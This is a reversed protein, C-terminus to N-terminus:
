EQYNKLERASPDKADTWNPMWFHPIVYARETFFKDFIKRYFYSEKLFPTCHQINRRGEKFEEDSIQSDIFEQLTTHWSNKINSVGDSFACKRRHLIEKPLLNTNEFAKRLLYKEPRGNSGFMKLVPPIQMCYEVFAKDLFPTRAELGNSSVCRDSRLVDFLYIENLLKVNEESFDVLGPANKNYVYGMCVEDAGDGNFVVKVDTNESIYKSILYNGVSARVTTTDYSEINYIVTEIAEIFEEESLQVSHHDSGIYDAVIQAYRLDPSGEMGISFTKLNQPDDVMSAVLASILSSDLGGSLLCGVERDSMMRKAVAATLLERIKQCTKEEDLQLQDFTSNYYNMFAGPVDSAWWSGPPFPIISGDCIDILAKMESAITISGDDSWGIFAPRVGFPDRACFVIDEAADYLVFAFVGDLMKVTESIGYIKYLHLIVECDSGSKVELEHEQILEKYNYIEGNCVLSLNSDEPHALPQNALTSTDIIALRHFYLEIKKNISLRTTNDPGRYQIKQASDALASIEKPIGYHVLFGCM